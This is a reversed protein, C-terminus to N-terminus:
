NKFYGITRLLGNADSNTKYGDLARQLTNVGSPANANLMRRATLIGSMHGLNHDINKTLRGTYQLRNVNRLIRNLVDKELVHGTDLLRLFKVANPLTLASEKEMGFEYGLKYAQKILNVNM